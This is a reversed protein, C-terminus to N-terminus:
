APAAVSATLNPRVRHYVALGIAGLGWILQAFLVFGGVWPIIKLLGLILLGLALRGLLAGTKFGEGLIREGIWVGVFVQTSYIAIAYMLFTTIGVALGVLTICAVLAAVFVGPLVLIGIGGSVWPKNSMRVVDGFFAPVVLMLVLGFLFAAAWHFAFHWYAHARKYEPIHEEFIAQVPGAVKAGSEIQPPKDGRYSVTGRLDASSGITIDRSKIRVNGGVLNNMEISGISGLIDRSIPGNLEVQGGAVTFSGGVTGKRDVVATSCFAMVNRGVAGNVALDQSWSRVNGDVRGNIRVDQGFAFVDGAVHGDIIASQSWVFVDGNVDGDIRVIEGGVFLDSNITQGAPLTYNPEGHRLEGASATAPFALSLAFLLALPAMVMGVTTLRRWNHRLLAAVIGLVSVTALIEVLNRMEGWGKWLAGSFFLMTLVNGQTFGAQAFQQQWPEVIGGWLAYAGISAFGLTMIWGWPTRARSPAELLRAPIPEDSADLAERLWTGEHELTRLLVRCDACGSAHSAIERAREPELQKDLYLLCTMEDFHEGM